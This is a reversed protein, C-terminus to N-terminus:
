KAADQMWRRAILSLNFILAATSIGLMRPRDLCDIVIAANIVITAADFIQAMRRTNFM